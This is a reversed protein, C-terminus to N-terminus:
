PRSKVKMRSFPYSNCGTKPHSRDAAKHREAKRASRADYVSLCYGWKYVGQDLFPMFDIRSYKNAEGKNSKDNKAILYKEDYNWKLIHHTNLGEQIWLSDTVQYVLGYDDEFDGLVYAQVKEKEEISGIVQIEQEQALLLSVYCMGLLWLVTKLMNIKILSLFEGRFKSFSFRIFGYNRAM